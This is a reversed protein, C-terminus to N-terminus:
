GGVLEQHVKRVQADADSFTGDTRIVHDARGVKEEIPLQAAIRSRAEAETLKDRKIVRQL